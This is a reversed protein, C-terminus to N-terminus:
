QPQGATPLPDPAQGGRTKTVSGPSIEIHTPPWPWDLFQEVVTRGETNLAEAIHSPNEGRSETIKVEIARSSSDDVLWVWIHEDPFRSVISAPGKKVKWRM